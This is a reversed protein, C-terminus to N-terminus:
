IGNVLPVSEAKTVNDDVWLAGSQELWTTIDDAVSAVPRDTIDVMLKELKSNRFADFLLEQERIIRALNEYQSPNGSIRLREERADAFTEPQRYCLVLRFGLAKLRDELWQFDYKRHHHLWQHIQTSMYFRDVIWSCFPLHEFLQIWLEYTRLAWAERKKSFNVLGEGWPINTFGGWEASIIPSHYRYKRPGVFTPHENLAFALETKTTIRTGELIVKPCVNHGCHRFTQDGESNANM